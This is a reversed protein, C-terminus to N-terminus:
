PVLTTMFGKGFQYQIAGQEDTRYIMTHNKELAQLTEQHPHGFRNEFGCSIVAIEPNTAQLWTNTTSTKSGHHGVKMIDVDQIMGQELLGKEGAAELDGTFLWRKQDLEAYLVISDDNGGEGVEEKPALVQFYQGAMQFEMGQIVDVIKVTPSAALAEAMLKKSEAGRTKYITDINIEKILDQYAGIHDADSHTLFVKDLESIGAAKLTPVLIDKGIAFPDKQKAWAEKEFVVQGGTDILYDGKGFPLRILISDGQGVDIFLVQGHLPMRAALILLVYLVIFPKVSRRNEFMYFILWTLGIFLLLQWFDPRGTVITQLPFRSFFDTWKETWVFLQDLIQACFAHLPLFPWVLLNILCLPLLLFSFLPVYLLNFFLGMISFEYFHFMMIPAAAFISIFSIALSKTFFHQYRELWIRSSLIIAFSVTFSLQFGVEYLVNPRWFFFLLGAVCLCVLGSWRKSGIIGAFVLMGMIAARLVPPNAGALLAYLPLFICLIFAAKERTTGLRILIFFVIGSFLNIHLGSIALLHVIGLQQYEQYVEASLRAKDGLLLAQMYGATQKSFGQEIQNLLSQRLNQFAFRLKTVHQNTMTLQEADLEWFIGQRKLYMRYNFQNPNRNNEPKTLVGTIQLVDGCQLKKLDLQEQETQITYNLAFSEGNATVIAKYRDGDVLQKKAITVEGSFNGATAQTRHCFQDMMKYSSGILLACVLLLWIKKRRDLFFCVGIVVICVLLLFPLYDYLM